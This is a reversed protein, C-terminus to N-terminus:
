TLRARGVARCLIGFGLIGVLYLWVAAPLPVTSVPLDGAEAISFAFIGAPLGASTGTASERFNLLAGGADSIGAITPFLLVQDFVIISTGVTRTLGSFFSTENLSYLGDNDQDDFEITFDSFVPSGSMAEIRFIAANAATSFAFFFGLIVLFTLTSSPVSKLM